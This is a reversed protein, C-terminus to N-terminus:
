ARGRGRPPGGARLALHCCGTFRYAARSTLPPVGCAVGNRAGPFCCYTAGGRAQWRSLHLSDAWQAGRCTSTYLMASRIASSRLRVSTWTGSSECLSRPSWASKTPLACARSASSPSPRPSTSHRSSFRSLVRGVEDSERGHGVPDLLITLPPARQSSTCAATREWGCPGRRKRRQPSTFPSLTSPAGSLDLHTVSAEPLSATTSRLTGPCTHAGKAGFPRGGRTGAGCAHAM